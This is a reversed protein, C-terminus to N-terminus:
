NKEAEEQTEEKIFGSTKFVEMLLAIIDTLDHGEEIYKDCLDYTDDLTISHNYPTMAAHLVLIIFGLEPINGQNAVEVFKNLPNTKVKQELEVMARVNLRLKYEEKGITWTTFLM